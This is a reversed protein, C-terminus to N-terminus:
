VVPPTRSTRSCSRRRPASPRRFRPSFRRPADRGRSGRAHRRSRGADDGHRARGGPAASMTELVETRLDENLYELVDAAREVPLASLFPAVMERPLAEAVDALDNAHLEETEAAFRTRARRSCPSSTPRSCLASPRSTTTRMLRAPQPDSDEHRSRFSQTRRDQRGGVNYGPSRSQAGSKSPRDRHWRARNGGHRHLRRGSRDGAGRRAVTFVARVCHACTMGSISATTQM